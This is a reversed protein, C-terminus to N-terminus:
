KKKAKAEKMYNMFPTNVPEKSFSLSLNREIKKALFYDKASTPCLKITKHPTDGLLEITIQKERCATKKNNSKVGMPYLERWLSHYLDKLREHAAQQKKGDNYQYLLYFKNNKILEYKIPDKKQPNDFRLLVSSKAFLCGSAIFVILLFIHKM